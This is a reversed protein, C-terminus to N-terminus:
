RSLHELSERLNDLAKRVDDTDDHPQRITATFTAVDTLQWTRRYHELLAPDPARSTRSRYRALANPDDDALIWLDREPPALLATDWDIVRLGDRTTMVNGHHPEGHTLVFRKPRAAARAAQDDHTALARRLAEAGNRLAGRLAEAYPGSHWPGDLDALAAELDARAQIAFTEREAHARVDPGAGHVDIIADLLTDRDPTMAPEVNLMPYVAISWREGLHRLLAGDEAPIPAVVFRHGTMALAQASRLAAELRAFTRRRPEDPAFRRVDLDDVTVFWADVRWHHSGFGVPLYEVTTAEITWAARVADSVDADTLEPPRTRV